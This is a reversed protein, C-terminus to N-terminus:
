PELITFEITYMDGIADNATLLRFLIEETNAQAKDLLGNEIARQKMAEETAADFKIKDDVTINNFINDKENLLQVSDSNIQYSLIEAAPVSVVLKMEEELVDIAVLDLKVGAKIVGDWKLIFSKETFPINWNKIQRSDSFEAADTFLYEMTALESISHIESYILDLEIKPNVQSVVIPNEKLEDIYEELDQISNKLEAIENDAKQKAQHRGILWAASVSLLVIGLIVLAAIAKKKARNRKAIKLLEKQIDKNQLQLEENVEAPSEIPSM